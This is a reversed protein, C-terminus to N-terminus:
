MQNLPIKLYRIGNDEPEPHRGARINVQIAPLILVPMALTADRQTRLAVFEEEATGDRVHKNHRRQEAVTTCCQRERTEPPYDHCLYLRTDDDLALLRQISRFLTRADGGPFDCRATGGDPMFLTDGVFVGVDEICYAMDAPTHGPVHLAKATLTGISFEEGDEFLKDFQSGDPTFDDKLNFVDRFAEQVTCIHHGIGIRGGLVDQLYCAASLHDAHAHTELIWQVELKNQQVYSCIEDAGKTSTRAAKPDYGLVPDIIACRPDDAAHVVYSFTATQEDFFPQVKASTM